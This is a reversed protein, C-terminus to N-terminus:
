KKQPGSLEATCLAETNRAYLMITMLSVRAVLPDIYAGRDYDTSAVEALARVAQLCTLPADDAMVPSAAVM